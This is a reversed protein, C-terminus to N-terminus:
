TRHRERSRTITLRQLMGPTPFAWSIHNAFPTHFNDFCMGYKLEEPYNPSDQVKLDHPTFVYTKSDQVKLLESKSLYPMWDSSHWIKSQNHIKRENEQVTPSPFPWEAHTPKNHTEESTFMIKTVNKWWIYQYSWQRTFSKEPITPLRIQVQLISELNWCCSAEELQFGGELELELELEPEEVELELEWQV